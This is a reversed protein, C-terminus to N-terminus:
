DVYAGNHHFVIKGNKGEVYVAGSLYYQTVKYGLLRLIAIGIKEPDYGLNSCLRKLNNKTVKMAKGGKEYHKSRKEAIM